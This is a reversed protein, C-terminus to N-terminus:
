PGFRDLVPEYRCRCGLAHSCGEVPLNPVDDFNHAGELAKCAPCSDRNALIRVRTALGSRIRDLTDHHRAVAQEVTEASRSV